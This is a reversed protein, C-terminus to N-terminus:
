IGNIEGIRVLAEQCALLDEHVAREAETMKSVDARKFYELRVGDQQRQWRSMRDMNNTMYNFQKPDEDRMRMIMELRSAGFDYDKPPWTKAIEAKSLGNTVDFAAKRISEVEAEADGNKRAAIKAELEKIRARMAALKDKATVADAGPAPTAVPQEAPCVVPSEACACDHSLTRFGYGAAGGLALLGVSLIFKTKM